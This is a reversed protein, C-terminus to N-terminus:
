CSYWRRGGGAAEGRSPIRAEGVIMTTETTTRRGASRGAAYGDDSADAYFRVFSCLLGLWGLGRGLVVLGDQSYLDSFAESLYSPLRSHPHTNLLTSSSSSSSSEPDITPPTPPNTARQRRSRKQNRSGVVDGTGDDVEVDIVEDNAVNDEAADSKKSRKRKPRGSM